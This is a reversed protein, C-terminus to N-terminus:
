CVVAFPKCNETRCLTIEKTDRQAIFHDYRNEAFIMHDREYRTAACLINDREYTREQMDRQQVRSKEREKRVEKSCVSEKTDRHRLSLTIEKM